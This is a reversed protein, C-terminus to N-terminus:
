KVKDQSVDMIMRAPKAAVGVGLVGAMGDRSSLRCGANGADREIELAFKWCAEPTMRRSFAHIYEATM